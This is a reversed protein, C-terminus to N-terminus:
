GRSYDSRSIWMQGRLKVESSGVIGSAFVLMNLGWARFMYIYNTVGLYLCTIENHMATCRPRASIFIRCFPASLNTQM